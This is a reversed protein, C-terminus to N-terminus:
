SYYNATPNHKVILQSKLKSIQEQQEIIKNTLEIQSLLKSELQELKQNIIKLEMNILENITMNNYSHELRRRKYM